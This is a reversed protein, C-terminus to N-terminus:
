MSRFFRGLNTQVLKCNCSHKYQLHGGIYNVYAEATGTSILSFYFRCNIMSERYSIGVTIDALSFVEILFNIIQFNEPTWRPGYGPPLPLARAEGKFNKVTMIRVPRAKTIFRADSEICM